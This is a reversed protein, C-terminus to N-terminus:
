AVVPEVNEHLWRAISTMRADEHQQGILQLGVPLGSVAMMPITVVPAFLLSTPTNFVPNGTPFSTLPEGPRDGQWLPAPGPCALTIAADAMPGLEAHRVQATAREALAAEYDDPRMREARELSAMARASLGGGKENLINRLAWRNEWGIIEFCIRMAEAISLEFAEVRRDESRRILAIGSQELRGLFTEFASKTATDLATAWGETELVVLRQPRQAGPPESPGTLARFGRDGGARQAIEIAVQWMDAISGAHVGHTSM